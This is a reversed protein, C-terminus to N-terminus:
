YIFFAALDDYELPLHVDFDHRPIKVFRRNYDYVTFCGLGWSSM